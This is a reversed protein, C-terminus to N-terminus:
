EGTDPAAANARSAGAQASLMMLPNMIHWVVGHNTFYANVFVVVALAM